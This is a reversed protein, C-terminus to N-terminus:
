GADHLGGRLWDVPNQVRIATTFRQARKCFRDDTTLLVYCGASEALVLHMADYAGLGHMAAAHAQPLLAGTFGIRERAVQLIALVEYRRRVDAIRNLEDELLTSSM